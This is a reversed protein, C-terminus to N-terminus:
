MKKIQYFIFSYLARCNYYNNKNGQRFNQTLYGRYKRGLYDIIVTVTNFANECYNQFNATVTHFANDCYNHFNAITVNYKNTIFLLNFKTIKYPDIQKSILIKEEDNLISTGYFSKKAYVEKKKDDYKKIFDIKKNM